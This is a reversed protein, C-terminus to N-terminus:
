QVETAHQEKRKKLQDCQEVWLAKLEVQLREKQEMVREVRPGPEATEGGVRPSVTM